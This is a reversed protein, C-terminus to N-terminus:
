NSIAYVSGGNMSVILQQPDWEQTNDAPTASDAVMWKGDPTVARIVIFHGGSTFPLPGQGAAIVLSGAQLAASIAAVNNGLLTAKLGWHKALVPGISWSSGQGPVYLNQSAAYDSTAVPNVSSGTLATIITAMATPGCGSDGITSTSYPQSVWAPDYQSYILMGSIYQSAQGPGSVGSCGSVPSAPTTPTAAAASGGYLQLIKQGYAIRSPLSNDGPNEYVLFVPTAAQDVTTSAKVAGLVTPYSTNLEQWSFDLQTSLSDEPENNSAAYAILKTLRGQYWQAIGHAGISNTDSPNLGSEAEFNGVIGASQVPTLGKSVFFNFAKQINDSGLLNTAVGIQCTANSGNYYPSGYNIELQLQGTAAYAIQSILLLSISIM